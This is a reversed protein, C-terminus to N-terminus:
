WEQAASRAEEQQQRGCLLRPPNSPRGDLFWGGAARHRHHHHLQQAPCTHYEHQHAPIYRCSVRQWRGQNRCVPLWRWGEHVSDCCRGRAERFILSITPISPLVSLAETCFSNSGISLLFPYPHRSYLLFLYSFYRCRCHVIYM